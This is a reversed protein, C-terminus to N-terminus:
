WGLEETGEVMSLAVLAEIDVMPTEADQKVDHEAAGDREFGGVHGVEVSEDDFALVGEGDGEGSTGNRKQHNTSARERM